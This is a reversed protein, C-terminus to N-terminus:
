FSHSLNATTAISRHQNIQVCKISHHSKPNVYSITINPVFLIGKNNTEKQNSEGPQIIKLEDVRFDVM